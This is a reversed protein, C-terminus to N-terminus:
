GDKLRYIYIYNNDQNFRAVEIFGKYRNENLYELIKINASFSPFMIYSIKNNKYFSLLKEPTSIEVTEYWLNYIKNKDIEYKDSYFAASMIRVTLVTEGDKVNEKVWQMAEETPFYKLKKFEPASTFQANLSPVTCISILYVSLVLYIIRFSYKWRSKDIISYLFQSLFVAITPYLALYLRPSYNGIDLVLFFYYAIFLFGYFLTLTNKKAVLIFVISFLFLSFIVWSVDMPFNLFFTYVKGEFPKFNSWIIKYSRWSYFKNIIMWPMIPVLSLLLASFHSTLYTEPKKIKLLALFAFCIFFMLFVQEKYLFGIGIFYSTLLIDRSDGNKTFRIFYFSILTIFFVTGCALEGLQAYIFVVPLFLYITAGILSSAKDSFLGIARYLYISSLIAFALEVIRPGAPTIGFASYTIHYLFKSVPTYRILSSYYPINRTVIFYCSLLVIISLALFLKSSKNSPNYRFKAIVKNLLGDSEKRFRTLLLTCIGLWFAIQFYKHWSIGIYEYIWLGDQLHLAEDGMILIPYSIPYVHLLVAVCCVIIFFLNSKITIVWNINNDIIPKTVPYAKTWRSILHASIFFYFLLGFFILGRATVSVPLAWAPYILYCVIWSLFFLLTYQTSLGIM